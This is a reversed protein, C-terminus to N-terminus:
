SRPKDAKGYHIYFLISIWVIFLRAVGGQILLFGAGLPDWCVICYSFLTGERTFWNGNIDRSSSKISINKEFVCNPYSFTCRDDARNLSEVEVPGDNCSNRSVWPSVMARGLMRNM